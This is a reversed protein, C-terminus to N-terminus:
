LIKILFRLPFLGSQLGLRLYFYLVLMSRPSIPDSPPSQIWRAWSLSWHRVTIFVTIFTRTRYLAPFKKLLQLVILKEFLVINRQSLKQAGQKNCPKHLHSYLCKDHGWKYIRSIYTEPSLCWVMFAYAPM